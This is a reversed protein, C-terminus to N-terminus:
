RWENTRQASWNRSGWCQFLSKASQSWSKDVFMVQSSPFWKNFGLGLYTIRQISTSRVSIGSDRKAFEQPYGPKNIHWGQEDAENTCHLLKSRAPVNSQHHKFIEPAQQSGGKFENPTVHRISTHSRTKNRLGLIWQQLQNSASHNTCQDQPVKKEAKWM